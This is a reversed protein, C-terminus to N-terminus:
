AVDDKIFGRGTAVKKSKEKPIPTLTVWAGLRDHGKAIEVGMGRLMPTLRTLAIGFGRPSKPLATHEDFATRSKVQDLLARQLGEWGGEEALEMLARGIPNSTVAEAQKDREKALLVREFTGPAWPLAGGKEARMVFAAADIMRVAPAPDYDRERLATSM